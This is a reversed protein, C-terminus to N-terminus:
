RVAPVDIGATKDANTFGLRRDAAAHMVGPPPRHGIWWEFQREAQAVLMPLGDITLCGAARADRLLKSEGPGYTLDYVLRGDLRADPVPSQDRLTTGGMPTCNVLLDWSGRAPPWAGAGAGLASALREAQDQRRAHVTVTAGRSLLAAVIARASGGAGLVAARMGRLAMPQAAELADLFGGADTNTAQWRNDRRRLTNAAGIRGAIDDVDAAAVLADQKFPITISAGDIGMAAAFELFDAFDTAPLPVYVADVGSAAFAANHMAPSASHMANTSVVGFLRTDPGVSRFRFEDVMRSATVQGPAVAQGAYTWRSGFRSPLLRTPTGADGMAIVVANGGRGIDVLRLSESLRQPMVAVKITGAGTARMARARDLIDSPVGNFDHSSLVVRRPDRRVLDEFRARWEIDVFDAGFALAEELITRREEESGEFRGGEWRPRCTFIVPRRRNALVAAVDLDAVGDARLEVMDGTTAADRAAILEATSDGTVTECLLSLVAM